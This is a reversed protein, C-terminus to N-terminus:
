SKYKKNWTRKISTKADTIDERFESRFIQALTEKVFKMSDCHCADSKSVIMTSTKLQSINTQSSTGKM